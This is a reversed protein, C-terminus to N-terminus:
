FLGLDFKFVSISLGYEFKYDITITINAMDKVLNSVNM